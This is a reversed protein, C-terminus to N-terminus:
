ERSSRIASTVAPKPMAATPQYETPIVIQSWIPNPECITARTNIGRM